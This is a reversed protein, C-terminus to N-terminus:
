FGEIAQTDGGLAAEGQASFHGDGGPRDTRAGAADKAAAPNTGDRGNDVATAM